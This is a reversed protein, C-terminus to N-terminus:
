ALVPVVSVLPFCAIITEAPDAYQRYDCVKFSTRPFDAVYSQAYDWYSYGNSYIRYGEMEVGTLSAPSFFAHLTRAYWLNSSGVDHM